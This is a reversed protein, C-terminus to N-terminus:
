YDTCSSAAAVVVVAATAYPGAWVFYTCVGTAAAAGGVDKAVVKCVQRFIRWGRGNAKKGKFYKTDWLEYNAFWYEMSNSAISLTELLYAKEDLSLVSNNNVYDETENIFILFPTVSAEFSDEHLSPYNQVYRFINEIIDKCTGSIKDNSALMNLVEENTFTFDGDLKEFVDDIMNHIEVDSYGSSALDQFVLGSPNKFFNNLKREIELPTIVEANNYYYALANNHEKGYNDFPNVFGNKVNKVADSMENDKACSGFILFAVVLIIVSSLYKM